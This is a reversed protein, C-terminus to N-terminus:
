QIDKEEANNFRLSFPDTEQPCAEVTINRKEKTLMKQLKGAVYDAMLHESGFHGVDLLCMGAAEADKAAHHGFDGGVYVDAGCGVAASILSGGSGTCLAVRRIRRESNGVMRVHSIGLQTMLADALRAFSTDAVLEGYRGIGQKKEPDKPDGLVSADLIGIKEALLDNLGGKVSDMNTHASFISIRNRIATEIIVGIPSDLDIRRLPKFFLPHHTVIMDVHDKAAAKIVSLSPDLSIWVKNVPHDVSGIQLGVNDWDESLEPPAIIDMLRIIDKVQTVM